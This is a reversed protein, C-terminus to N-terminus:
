HNSCDSTCAKDSSPVVTIGDPTVLDACLTPAFNVDFVLTVLNPGSYDIPITVSSAGASAMTNGVSIINQAVALTPLASLLASAAVALIKRCKLGNMAPGGTDRDSAPM